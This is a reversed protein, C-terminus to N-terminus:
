GLFEDCLEQLKNIMRAIHFGDCTAHHVQISIPLLFKGSQHTYKGMTFIPPFYDKVNAVNLNFGDFSVWPIMSICFHNEPFNSKASLSLNDQYEQYDQNYGQSFSPWDEFYESWLESFTETKPHFITYAPNIYDWIVLENDKIAMRSEPYSNVTKAILYIMVPYFKFNNKDLVTKLVTIDIKTTLSFGCQLNHRYHLFHEKRNWQELDVKKYNM